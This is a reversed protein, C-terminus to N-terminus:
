RNSLAGRLGIRGGRVYNVRNLPWSDTRCTAEVPRIITEPPKAMLAGFQKVTASVNSQHFAVSDRSPFLAEVFFAKAVDDFGFCWSTPGNEAKRAAVLRACEQLLRRTEDIKDPRPTLIVHHHQKAVM